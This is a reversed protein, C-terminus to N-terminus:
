LPLSLGGSLEVNRTTRARFDILMRLDSRFALRPLLHVRAGVGPVMSLSTSTEVAPALRPPAPGSTGATPNAM